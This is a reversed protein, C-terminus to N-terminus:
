RYVLGRIGRVLNLVKSGDDMLSIEHPTMYVGDPIYEHKSNFWWIAPYELDESVLAYATARKNSM